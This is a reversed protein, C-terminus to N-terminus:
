GESTEEENNDPIEAIKSEEKKASKKAQTKGSSKKPAPAKKEAKKTDGADKKPLTKWAEYTAKEYHSVYKVVQKADFGVLEAIESVSRKAKAKTDKEFEALVPLLLRNKISDGSGKKSVKADAVKKGAGIDSLTEANDSKSTQQVTKKLTKHTAPKGKSKATSKKTVVPKKKSM